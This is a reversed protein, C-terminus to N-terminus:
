GFKPIVIFPENVLVEEKLMDNIACEIKELSLIEMYGVCEFYPHVTLYDIHWHVNKKKALHRVLRPQLGGPGLASGIYIYYGKSFNVEDLYGISIKTNKNTHLFLIYTGKEKTLKEGM